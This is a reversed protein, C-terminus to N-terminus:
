VHEGRSEIHISKTLSEPIHVAYWVVNKIDTSQPERVVTGLDFTRLQLSIKGESKFSKDNLSNTSNSFYQNIPAELSAVSESKKQKRTRYQPKLKNIFYVDVYLSPEEALFAALAILMANHEEADQPDKVKLELLFDKLVTRLPVDILVQNNTTIDLYSNILKGADILPGFNEPWSDRITALLQQNQKVAIKERHLKKPVLWKSIDIRRTSRGIVNSRTPKLNGGLIFDRRWQSLPEGRNKLLIDRIFEEHEVYECFADKVDEQLFIRCLGIYDKKYGFFRARQQLTDASPSTGLPRPMYTVALGEVTYGRDLKAGGVLIWYPNSTWNVKKEADPTGNVEVCYLDCLVDESIAYILDILPSLKPYTIKLSSYEGSFYDEIDKMNNRKLNGEIFRELSRKAGDMWKKYQKHSITEMAPHVMMSRNKDRFKTKNVRHLNKEIAHQAAVLIFYKFACILTKPITKVEHDKSPVETPPINELLSINEKFFSKGGTYNSGPTVIEAFNPNLLDTQAMLLLAQPTATYQLYSHNPINVRVKCIWDYITSTATSSEKGSRIRAMKTNLSAQDSEDDIILTPVNKLQLKKLIADLNELHTAQKLVTILVSKKRAPNRQWSALKGKIQAVQINQSTSFHAWFDEENIGLDKILREESQEQLNKKTGVFIIVLGYGNDRALSIVTEFSMTKGSQVYGIVLGTEEGAPSDPPLCRGLVRMAEQLLSNEGDVLDQYTPGTVQNSKSTLFLHTAEGVVPTWRLPPNIKGIIKISTM